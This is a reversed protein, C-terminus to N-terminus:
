KSIFHFLSPHICYKFLLGGAIRTPSLHNYWFFESKRYYLNNLGRYISLFTLLIALLALLKACVFHIHLYWM